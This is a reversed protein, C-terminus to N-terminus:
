RHELNEKENNIETEIEKGKCGDSTVGCSMRDGNIEKELTQIESYREGDM